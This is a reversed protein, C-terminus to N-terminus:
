QKGNYINAIFVWPKASQLRSQALITTFNPIAMAPCILPRHLRLRHVCVEQEFHLITFSRCLFYLYICPISISSVTFFIQLNKFIRRTKQQHQPISSRLSPPLKPIKKKEKSPLKRRPSCALNLSKWRHTAVKLPTFLACPGISVASFNREGAQKVPVMEDLLQRDSYNLYM